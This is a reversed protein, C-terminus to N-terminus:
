LYRPIWIYQMDGSVFHSFIKCSGFRPNRDAAAVLRSHCGDVNRCTLHLRAVVLDYCLTNNIQKRLFAVWPRSTHRCRGYCNTSMPIYGNFEKGAFALM